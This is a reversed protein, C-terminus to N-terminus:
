GWVVGWFMSEVVIDEFAPFHHPNFMHYKQYMAESGTPEIHLFESYLQFPVVIILHMHHGACGILSTSLAINRHHPNLEAMFDVLLDGLLEIFKVPESLQPDGKETMRHASHDYATRQGEELFVFGEEV